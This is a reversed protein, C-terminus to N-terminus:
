CTLPPVVAIEVAGERHMMSGEVQKTLEWSKCLFATCDSEPM